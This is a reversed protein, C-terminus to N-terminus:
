LSGAEVEAPDRSAPTLAVEETRGALGNLWYVLM